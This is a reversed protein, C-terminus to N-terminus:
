TRTNARVSVRARNTQPVFLKLGLHLVYVVNRSVGLLLTFPPTVVFSVSTAAATATVVVMCGCNISSSPMKRHSFSVEPVPMQGRSGRCLEVAIKVPSKWSVIKEKEFRIKLIWIRWRTIDIFWKEMVRNKGNRAPPLLFLKQLLRPRSNHKLIRLNMKIPDGKSM